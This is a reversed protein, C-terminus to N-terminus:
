NAQRPSGNSFRGLGIRAVARRMWATFFTFTKAPTCGSLSKAGNAEQNEFAIALRLRFKYHDRCGLRETDTSFPFIQGRAPDKLWAITTFQPLCECRM